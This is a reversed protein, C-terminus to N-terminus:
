KFATFFQNMTLHFSSMVQETIQKRGKHLWLRHVFLKNTYLLSYSPDCSSLSSIFLLSFSPISSLFIFIQPNVMGQYWADSNDDDDGLYHDDSIMMVMMMTVTMMM